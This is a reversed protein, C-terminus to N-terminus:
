CYVCHPYKNIATLVAQYAIYMVRRPNTLTLLKTIANFAPNTKTNSPASKWSNSGTSITLSNYLFWTCVMYVNLLDLIEEVKKSGEINDNYRTGIIPIWRKLNSDLGFQRDPM